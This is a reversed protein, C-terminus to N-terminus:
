SRRGHKAATSRAGSRQSFTIFLVQHGQDPVQVLLKGECQANANPSEKM